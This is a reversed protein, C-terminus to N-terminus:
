ESSFFQRVKILVLHSILINNNTFISSMPMRHHLIDKKNFSLPNSSFIAKAGLKKLIKNTKLNYCTNKQGFPYAFIKIFNNFKKIANQNKIYQNKLDNSNLNIANYHNYLHNGFYVLNNKDLKILDSVTLFNGTYKSIKLFFKKKNITKFFKKVIKKNIELFNISKYKNIKKIKIYENFEKSIETLYTVLGAWSLDGKIVAMNLFILSPIKHKKLIPVANKIYSKDGDDFTIMVAPKKYDNQLLETPSIINFNNKLLILQKEFLKPNINLNFMTHFHPQNNSVGHYVVIITSNKLFINSIIKCSLIVTVLKTKLIKKLM